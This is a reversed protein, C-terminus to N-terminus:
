KDAKPLVASHKFGMLDHDGDKDEVLEYMECGKLKVEDYFDTSANCICSLLLSRCYSARNKKVDFDESKDKNKLTLNDDIAKILLRMTNKNKMNKRVFNVCWLEVDACDQLKASKEDDALRFMDRRLGSLEEQKQCLTELIKVVRDKDGQKSEDPACSLLSCLGRSLGRKSRKTSDEVTDVLLQMSTHMNTIYDTSNSTAKNKKTKTHMLFEPKRYKDGLSTRIKNLIKKTDINYDRKAKDIEM